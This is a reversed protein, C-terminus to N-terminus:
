ATELRLLMPRIIDNSAAGLREMVTKTGISKNFTIDNIASAVFRDDGLFIDNKMEDSRKSLFASFPGLVEENIHWLALNAERRERDNGNYGVFAAVECVNEIVAMISRETSEILVAAKKVFMGNSDLGVAEFTNLAKLVQGFGHEIKPYAEHDRWYGVGHEFRRTADNPYALISKDRLAISYIQQPPDAQLAPKQTVAKM